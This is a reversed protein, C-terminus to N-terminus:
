RGTGADVPLSASVQWGAGHPGATLTGGTLRARERMGPLGAGAGPHHSDVTPGGDDQVVVGIRDAADDLAVTVTVHTAAPAHRLVNTLSEQVIRHVALGVGPSTARAAGDDISLRVDLGASRVREALEGLDSLTPQPRLPATDGEDHLAGLMRRMEDLGERGVRGIQEVAARAEAPETDIAFRAGDSLAVMVSLNHTLVDHMEGAIRAREERVAADRTAVLVRNRNRTVLGLAVPVVVMAALTIAAPWAASTGIAWRQMALLLGLGAIGLALGVLDRRPERAVVTYLAILVAVDGYLEPGALWQVFAVGAIVLFVLLPARKRWLLPVILGLQLAWAWWEERWFGLDLVPPAYAGDPDTVAPTAPILIVLFAAALLADLPALRRPPRAAGPEAAGNRGGPWSAAARDLVQSM